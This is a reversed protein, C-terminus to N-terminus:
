QRVKASAHPTRDSLNFSLADCLAWNDFDRCWRDMQASTVRAPDDIFSAAMRAEYIGTDWLAAALQHNTGVSMALAKIDRMAVGLARDSPIAYRAMAQRGAQSGRSRLRTLMSEVDREIGNV